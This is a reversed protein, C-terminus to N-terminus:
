RASCIRTTARSTAAKSAPLAITPMRKGTGTQPCTRSAVGLARASAPQGAGGGGAARVQRHPRRPREAQGVPARDACPDRPQRLSCASSKRAARLPGALAARLGMKEFARRRHTRGPRSCITASGCRNERSCVSGVNGAGSSGARVEPCPRSARSTRSAGISTFPAAAATEGSGCSLAIGARAKAYRRACRVRSRSPSAAAGALCSM